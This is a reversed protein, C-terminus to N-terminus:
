TGTQQGAHIAYQPAKTDVLGELATLYRNGGFPSGGIPATGSRNILADLGKGISSYEFTKMDRDKDKITRITGGIGGLIAGFSAGVVMSPIRTGPAMNHGGMAMATAIAGAIGGGLVGTSILSKNLSPRNAVPSGSQELFAVKKDLPLQQFLPNDLIKQFNVGKDKYHQVLNDLLRDEIASM